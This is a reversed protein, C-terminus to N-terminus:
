DGRDSRFNRDRSGEQNIISSPDGGLLYVLLVIVLTGIGGGVVKGGTSMGRRDEVNSSGRRGQWKM